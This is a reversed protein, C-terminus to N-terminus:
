HWNLSLNQKQEFSHLVSCQHAFCFLHYTYVVITTKFFSQRLFYFLVNQILNRAVHREEVEFLIGWFQRFNVDYNVCITKFFLIFKNYSTELSTDSKLRLCYVWWISTLQCNYNVRITKFFLLPISLLQCKFNVCITKLFYFM